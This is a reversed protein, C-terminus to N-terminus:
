WMGCAAVVGDFHCIDEERNGRLVNLRKEVCGGDQGHCAARALREAATTHSGPLLRTSGFFDSARKGSARFDSGCVGPPCQTGYIGRRARPIQWHIETRSLILRM